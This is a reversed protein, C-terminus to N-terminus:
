GYAPASYYYGYPSRAAPYVVPRHHERWEHERWEHARWEHGRVDRNHDWDRGDALATTALAGAVGATALLALLLKRMKTMKVSGKRPTPQWTILRRVTGWGEM